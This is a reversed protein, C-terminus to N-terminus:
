VGAFVNDPVFGVVSASAHRLVTGEVICGAFVGDVNGVNSAAEIEYMVRLGSGVDMIFAM